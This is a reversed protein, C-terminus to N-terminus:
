SRRDDFLEMCKKCKLLCPSESSAYTLFDTCKIGNKYYSYGDSEHECDNDIMFQLKKLVKGDINCVCALIEKLEEKTLNNM